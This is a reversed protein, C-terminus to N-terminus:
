NGEEDYGKVGEMFEEARRALELYEVYEPPLEPDASSNYKSKEEKKPEIQLIISWMNKTHLFGVSTEVVRNKRLNKGIKRYDEDTLRYSLFTDNTFYITYLKREEM